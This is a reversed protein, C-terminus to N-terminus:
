SARPTLEQGTVITLLDLLKRQAPTRGAGALEQVEGLTLCPDPFPLQRLADGPNGVLCYREAQRQVPIGVQRLLQLDRYFGRLGLQLRRLLADRRQPGQALLSLLRYLRAARFPTIALRAPPFSRPRQRVM